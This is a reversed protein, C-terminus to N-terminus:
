LAKDLQEQREQLDQKLSEVEVKLEINQFVFLNKSFTMAIVNQLIQLCINQTKSKCTNCEFIHNEFFFFFFINQWM